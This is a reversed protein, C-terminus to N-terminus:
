KERGLQADDYSVHQILEEYEKERKKCEEYDDFINYSSEGCRTLLDIFTKFSDIDEIWGFRPSTGCDGFMESLIMWFVQLQACEEPSDKYKDYYVESIWGDRPEIDKWSELEKSLGNYWVVSQLAELLSMRTKMNEYEAKRRNCWPHLNDTAVLLSLDHKRREPTLVSRVCEMNKALLSGVMITESSQGNKQTSRAIIDMM